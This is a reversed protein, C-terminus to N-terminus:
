ANRIAADPLRMIAKDIDRMEITIGHLAGAMAGALANTDVGGGLSAPNKVGVITDRPNFPMPPKGPRYVFDDMFLETAGWTALGLGAGWLGGGILGKSAAGAAPLINAGLKAAIATNVALNSVGAAASLAGSGGVAGAIASLM